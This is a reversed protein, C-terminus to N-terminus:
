EIVASHLDLPLKCKLNSRGTGCQLVRNVNLGRMAEIEDAQLKVKKVDLVRERVWSAKVSDGLLVWM